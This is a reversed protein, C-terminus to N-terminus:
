SHSGLIEDLNIDKMWDDNGSGSKLLSDIFDSDTNIGPVTNDGEQLFEFTLRNVARSNQTQYSGGPNHNHPPFVGITSGGAPVRQEPSAQNLSPLGPLPPMMPQSPRPNTTTTSNRLGPNLPLMGIEPAVQNPPGPGIHRPGPPYQHSSMDLQSQSHAGQPQLSNPPQRVGLSGPVMIPAKAGPPWGMVGGLGLGQGQSPMGGGQQGVSTRSPHQVSTLGGVEFGNGQGNPPGPFRSKNQNLGGGVGLGMKTQNNHQQIQHTHPGRGFRWDTPPPTMKSGPGSPMHCSMSLLDSQDSGNTSLSQSSSMGTFLGTPQVMGRPQKYDPPPRTLHRNFLDQSSNIKDSDNIIHQQQALQRQMVQTKGPGPPKQQTNSGPAPPRQNAQAQTQASMGVLSGNTPLRPGPPMQRQQALKFHLGPGAGHQSLPTRQALSKPQLHPPGSMPRQQQPNQYNHVPHNTNLNQASTSPQQQQQHATTKSLPGAMTSPQQSAKPSFHLMPKNSLVKMDLHSSTNHGNPKFLCNNIGKGQSDMSTQPTIRQGMSAPNSLKDQPFSSSSPQTNWSTGPGGGGGAQAQQHPQQHHLLAQPNPQQQNQNAAMQKLQEAHSVEPWGPLGRSPPGALGSPGQGQSKQNTIPSSSSMTFSPGTSAPRLQSSGGHGHTQGYDPSSYETKIPKELHSCLTAASRELDALGFTDDQKLMKEFEQDHLSPVTKTLEDFLDQLEPDIQSSFVMMETSRQGCSTVHDIPEKKMEKLTMNILDSNMVGHPMMYSSNNNKRNLTHGISSADGGISQSNFSCPGGLGGSGGELRVRKFDLGSPGCSLGNQQSSYGPTHGEIKRRLSGQLAIRTSIKQDGASSSQSKQEGNVRSYDPPQQNSARNGKTKRNGPGQHVINLLHLTSEHERDSNEAQGRQYRNECTSHHRRCLEIRARLREVIASHLQPVASGRSTALPGAVGGGPMSGVMGLGLMPVFGGAAPQAPTAEGM